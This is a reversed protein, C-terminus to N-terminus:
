RFVPIVAEAFRHLPELDHALGPLYVLLHEVGADRLHAVRERTERVTRVATGGDLRALSDHRLVYTRATEREAETGVPFVDLSTSKTIGAEDRGADACHARLVALKRAVVAPDGAGVNCADGYRAVLPLTVREGGGAIWFEPRPLGRPENSPRDVAYYRGDVTPRRETWLAHVVRVAEAFRAMREGLGPWPYGYAVAEGRFWGAGLGACLRGGSAVDVTSAMKAFLAPHRFGNSCAMQGIRVRRTERALVATLTWAEFLTSDRQEPVTHLHDHVWVSDWPGEDAARAVGLLTDLQASPDPSEPLDM